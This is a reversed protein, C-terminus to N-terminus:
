STQPRFSIVHTRRMMESTDSFWALMIVALEGRAKFQRILASNPAIMVCSDELAQPQAVNLVGAVLWRDVARVHNRTPAQETAPQSM